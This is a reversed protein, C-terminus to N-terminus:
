AQHCAVAVLSSPLSKAEGYGHDMQALVPGPLVPTQPEM